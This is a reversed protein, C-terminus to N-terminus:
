RERGCDLMSKVKHFGFNIAMRPRICMLAHMLVYICLSAVWFLGHVTVSQGCPNRFNEM